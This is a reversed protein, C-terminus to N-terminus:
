IPKMMRAGLEEHGHFSWGVNEIFKKTAPKAIDHVLAAFRLWLNDTNQSINDVVKCTHLFVDKHHFDKRQDVGALNSIEPFVIELVGSYFMLKLGISPQPSSLIKLFEDTIREQSIIKLREAMQSAAKLTIEEINFNLQAAFRFARMIRLPDDNFTKIPELITRIQRKKIDKIGDFKDIVEGFNDKNLSVAISNITFDRRKIDDEFTGINVNPNRSNRAYSEKRAGVFELNLKEYVFHATGFNKYIDIENIGLSKALNSAFDPGDGVVLFDFDKKVSKKLILDRVYGGVLYVQVGFDDAFEKIVSIIKIKEIHTKLEIM